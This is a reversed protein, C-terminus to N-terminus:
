DGRGGGEPQDGRERAGGEEDGRDVGEGEVVVGGGDPRDVM